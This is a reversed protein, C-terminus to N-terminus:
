ESGVKPICETTIISGSPEQAACPADGPIGSTNNRVQLSGYLDEFDSRRIVVLDNGRIEGALHVSLLAVKGETANAKAQEYWNRLSKPYNKLSRHKCEVSFLPHSCDEAEFHNRHAGIKSWSLENKKWTKTPM